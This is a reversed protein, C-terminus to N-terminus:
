VFKITKGVVTTMCLKGQSSALEPTRTEAAKLFKYKTQQIQTIGKIRTKETHSLCSGARRDINSPRPAPRYAELLRDALRKTINQDSSFAQDARATWDGCSGQNSKSAMWGSSKGKRKTNRIREEWRTGKKNRQSFLLLSEM